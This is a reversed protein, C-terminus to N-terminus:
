TWQPLEPADDVLAVFAKGRSKWYDATDSLIDLLRRWEDGLARRAHAANSLHLVYADAARWALDQLVDALADWNDGFEGPYGAAAAIKRLLTHKDGAKDLDAELWAVDAATARPRPAAGRACGYVGSRQAPFRTTATM